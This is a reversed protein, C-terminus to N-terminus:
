IRGRVQRSIRGCLKSWRPLVNSTRAGFSNEGRRGWHVAVALSSACSEFFTFLPLHEGFNPWNQRTFKEHFDRFIPVKKVDSSLGSWASCPFTVKLQIRRELTESFHGPFVRERWFKFAMYLLCTISYWLKFGSVWQYFASRDCLKVTLSILSFTNWCYGFIIAKGWFILEKGALSGSKSRSLKGCKWMSTVTVIARHISIKWKVKM